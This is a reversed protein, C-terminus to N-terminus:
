KKKRKSYPVVGFSDLMEDKQVATLLRFNMTLNQEDRTLENLFSPKRSNESKEPADSEDSNNFIPFGNDIGLLHSLSVGYMLALKTLVDLSPQSRGTEYYTYTSRELELCTAVQGQTLKNATRFKKLRQSLNATPNKEEETMVQM